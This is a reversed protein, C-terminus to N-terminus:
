GAFHVAAVQVQLGNVAANGCLADIAQTDSLDNYSEGTVAGALQQANGHTQHGFGHPM